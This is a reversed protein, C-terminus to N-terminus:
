TSSGRALELAVWDGEHTAGVVSLGASEFAGRVEAARDFFIGSAILRGGANVSAALPEALDILLSAVLNALVVDFTRAGEGLPVSGQRASIVAAMGNLRSNALTTEVALPDTDVGLVSTAGFLAAAVSLIGSGCGVDLVTAGRVLGRQALDEVAALCLRTTPHLGTGFAMGPDLSIVLEDDAAEYDRWTPRIVLGHGVHQVPFHEKWAEAWDEENVVRTELEGIPRLEFAQLHGLNARAADVAARAAAPDTASVYGRVVVPRGSSPRTALGEDVLEFPAEVSVGGPCM